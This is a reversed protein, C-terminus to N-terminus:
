FRVHEFANKQLFIMKCPPTQSVILPQVAVHSSWFGLAQIKCPVIHFALTAMDWNPQDHWVWPGDEKDLVEMEEPNHGMRCHGQWKLMIFFHYLSGAALGVEPVWWAHDGRQLHQPPQQLLWAESGSTREAMRSPHNKQHSGARWPPVGMAPHNIDHLIGTSISSLQPHGLGRARGLLAWPLIASNLSSNFLFFM